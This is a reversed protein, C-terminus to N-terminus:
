LLRYVVGSIAAVVALLVARAVRSHTVCYPVFVFTATYGYLRLCRLRIRVGEVAWLSVLVYLWSDVLPDFAFPLGYCPEGDCTADYNWYSLSVSPWRTRFLWERSWRCNYVYFRGSSDSGWRVHYNSLAPWGCFTRSTGYHEEYVFFELYSGAWLAPARLVQYIHERSPSVLVAQAIDDWCWLEWGSSPDM